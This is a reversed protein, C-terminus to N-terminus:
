QVLTTVAAPPGPREKGWTMTTVQAAPVGLLILYDRAEEAREAGLALAHDRTDTPDGHGEIRVPVEPHQRLWLAQASLLTRAQTTLQAHGPAFYVSTGGSQAAFDARLMEIPMQVGPATAVPQGPPGAPPYKKLFPLVQASGPSSLLAALAVLAKLKM